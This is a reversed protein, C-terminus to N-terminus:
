CPGGRLYSLDHNYFSLVIISADYKQISPGQYPTGLRTRHNIHIYTHTYIYIYIYYREKERERERERERETYIYIYKNKKTLTRFGNLFTSYTHSLWSVQAHIPHAEDQRWPEGSSRLSSSAFGPAPDLRAQKFAFCAYYGHLITYSQIPYSPVNYLRHFVLSSAFSNTNKNCRQSICFVVTQLSEQKSQQEVNLYYHAVREALQKDKM